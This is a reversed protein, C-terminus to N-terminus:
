ASLMRYPTADACLYLPVLRNDLYLIQVLQFIQNFAQALILDEPQLISGHVKFILNDRVIM